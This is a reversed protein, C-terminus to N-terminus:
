MLGGSVSLHSGLIKDNFESNGLDKDEWMHSSICGQKKDLTPSLPSFLPVVHRERNSPNGWGWGQGYPTKRLFIPQHDLKSIQPARNHSRSFNKKLDWVYVFM